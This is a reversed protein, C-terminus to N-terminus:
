LLYCLISQKKVMHAARLPFFKSGRPAFEKRSSYGRNRFSNYAYNEPNKRLTRLIIWNQSGWKMAYKTFIKSSM